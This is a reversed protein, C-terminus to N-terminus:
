GEPDLLPREEDADRGAAKNIQDPKFDATVLQRRGGALELVFQLGGWAMPRQQKVPLDLSGLVKGSQVDAVTRGRILWAKDETIWALGDPDPELWPPPLQGAGLKASFTPPRDEPDTVRWGVLTGDGKQEFLAAVRSSDNSFALGSAAVQGVPEIEPVVFRRWLALNATSYVELAIQDPQGRRVQRVAAALWRGNPSVAFNARTARDNPFGAEAVPAAAAAAADFLQVRSNGLASRLLLFRDDSIFGLLVPAGLKADLPISHLVKNQSLSYVQAELRPAKAIRVLRDGLPSLAYTPSQNMDPRLLVPNGAQQPPNITWLEFSKDPGGTPRVVVLHNSSTAPFIVQEFDDAAPFPQREPMLNPTRPLEIKPEAPVAPQPVAVPAVAPEPTGKSKPLSELVKALNQPNSAISEAVSKRISEPAGQMFGRALLQRVGAAIPDEAPQAPKRATKATEAPISPAPVVPTPVTPPSAPPPAGTGGSGTLTPGTAKKPAVGLPEWPLRNLLPSASAVHTKESARLIQYVLMNSGFLFASSLLMGLLFYCAAPLFTNIAEDFTLRFFLLLIPITLALGFLLGALLAGAGGAVWLVYAMAVPFSFAAYTRWGHKPPLEVQLRKSATKVGYWAFPFVVLSYLLVAVGARSLGVWSEARNNAVATVSLWVLSLAALAPPGAIDLWRSGVFNLNKSTRLDEEGEKPVVDYNQKDPVESYRSDGPQPVTMPSWCFKCPMRRGASRKDVTFRKGCDGCQVSIAM